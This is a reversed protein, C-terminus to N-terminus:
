VHARGIESEPISTTLAAVIAGTEEFSCLKLTIAARIVAEQWEFPLALQRAWDTWYDQTQEYLDVALSRLDTEVPEDAALMMVISRDCIFPTEGQIFGVPVDTTLRLVGGEILWRIHNSGRTQEPSRAGYGCRPKVRVRIRPVGARPEVMRIISVPRFVRRWRNFRPIFDVIRIENGDADALITELIATNRVYSQSSRVCGLLEIEWLGDRPADPDRLLDCFVPDGDLRPACCWVIRAEKDVLAAIACNGLVALDLSRPAATM